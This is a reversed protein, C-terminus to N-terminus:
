EEITDAFQFQIVEEEYTVRRRLINASLLQHPSHAPRHPIPARHSPPPLIAAPCTQQQQIAYPYKDNLIQILEPDTRHQYVLKVYERLIGYHRKIVDANEYAYEDMLKYVYGSAGNIGFWTLRGANAKLNAVSRVDGSSLLPAGFQAPNYTNKDVGFWYLVDQHHPLIPQRDLFLTSNGKDLQFARPDYTECLQENQKYDTMKLSYKGPPAVMWYLAEDDCLFNRVDTPHADDRYSSGNEGQNEEGYTHTM